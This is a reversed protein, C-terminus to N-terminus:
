DNVALRNRHDGALSVNERKWHQWTQIVPFWFLNKIAKDVAEEIFDTSTGTLEILKHVPENM